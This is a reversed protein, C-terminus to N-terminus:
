SLSEFALWWAVRDKRSFPRTSRYELERTRVNLTPVAIANQFRWHDLSEGLPSRIAMELSAARRVDLHSGDACRLLCAVKLMSATWSPTPMASWTVTREVFEREVRELPWHHSAALEGISRGLQSRLEEDDLLMIANDPRDVTTFGRFVLQVAADAHVQRLRELLVSRQIEDSPNLMEAATPRRRESTLYAAVVADDWAPGRLAAEGGPFAAVSNALDHLLIAGGLLFGELPSIPYGDGAIVSALQWLADLHRVSHDTLFPVSRAIEDAMIASRERFVDFASTLRAIAPTESSTRAEHEFAMRWLSTDKYSQYV